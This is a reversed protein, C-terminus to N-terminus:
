KIGRSKKKLLEEHSEIIPEGGMVGWGKKSHDGRWLKNAYVVDNRMIFTFTDLDYDKVEWATKFRGKDVPSGEIIKSNLSEVTEKFATKAQEVIVLLEEELSKPM